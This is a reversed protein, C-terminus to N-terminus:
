GSASPGATRKRRQWADYWIWFFLPIASAGFGLAYEPTPSDGGRAMLIGVIVFAAINPVVIGAAGRDRVRAIRRIGRSIAGSIAWLGVEFAILAVLSDTTM